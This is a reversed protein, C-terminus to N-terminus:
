SELAIDVKLGLFMNKEQERRKTLGASPVLVGGVKIKNWRLFEEAIDHTTYEAKYMKKLLTSAIFNGAGVNFIFSSLADYEYQNLPIKVYTNICLESKFYLDQEFLDNGEELSITRTMYGNPDDKEILHGWGITPKGAQDLYMKSRFSEFRKIFTKGAESTKVNTGKM